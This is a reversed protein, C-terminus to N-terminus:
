FLEVRTRSTCRGQGVEVGNGGNEQSIKEVNELIMEYVKRAMDMEDENGEAEEGATVDGWFDM